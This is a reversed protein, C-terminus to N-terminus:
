SPPAGSEADVGPEEDGQDLRFPPYEDPGAGVVPATYIETTATATLFSYELAPTQASSM